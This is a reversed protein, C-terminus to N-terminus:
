YDSFDKTFKESVSLSNRDVGGLFSQYLAQEGHLAASTSASFRYNGSVERTKRIM